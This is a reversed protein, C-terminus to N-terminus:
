KNNLYYSPHTPLSFYSSIKSNILEIPIENEPGKPIKSVLGRAFQYAILDVLELGPTKSSKPLFEPQSIHHIELQDTSTLGVRGHNKSTEEWRNLVAKNLLSNSRSECIIKAKEEKSLRKTLSDLMIEIGLLYPDPQHAVLAKLYEEVHVVFGCINFVRKTLLSNLDGYFKRRFDINTFQNIGSQKSKTPNAFENAHFIIEKTGFYKMKLKSFGKDILALEKPNIIVGAILFIPNTPDNKGTIPSYSGSEDIFLYKM